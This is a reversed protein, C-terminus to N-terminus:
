PAHARGDSDPRARAGGESATGDKWFRYFNFWQTPHARVVAELDADKAGRDIAELEDRALEFTVRIEVLPQSEHALVLPM